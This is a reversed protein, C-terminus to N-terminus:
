VEDFNQLFSTLDIENKQGASGNLLDWLYQDGEDASCAANVLSADFPTTSQSTSPQGIDSPLPPPDDFLAQGLRARKAGSPAHVADYAVTDFGPIGNFTTPASEIGEVHDLSQRFPFGYSVSSTSSGSLPTSSSSRSDHIGNTGLPEDAMQSATITSLINPISRHNTLDLLLFCICPPLTAHSVTPALVASCVPDRSRRDAVRSETSETDQRQHASPQLHVCRPNRSRTDNAGHGVAHSGLCRDCGVLSNTLVHM